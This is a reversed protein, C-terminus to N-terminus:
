IHPRLGWDEWLKFPNIMLGTGWSRGQFAGSAAGHGQSPDIM